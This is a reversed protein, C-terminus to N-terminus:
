LGFVQMEGDGTLYVASKSVIPSGYSAMSHSYLVAGSAENFAQLGDGLSGAYVVGNAIAPPDYDTADSGSDYAWLRVGSTANFAIVYEPTTAILTSGDLAPDLSTYSDGPVTPSIWLQSGTSASYAAVTNINELYVVGGSVVPTGGSAAVASTFLHAGTIANFAWLHTATAYAFGNAVSVASIDCCETGLAASWLLAGTTARFADVVSLSGYTDSYVVGNAVSTENFSAGPTVTRSWLLHGTSANYADMVNGIGVFVDGNSLAPVPNAPLPDGRFVLHSWRVSGSPINFVDLHIKNGGAAVLGSALSGMVVPYVGNEGQFGLWHTYTHTVVLGSVTSTGLTTEDRNDGDHAPGDMYMPWYGNGSPAGAASVSGTGLAAVVMALVPAVFRYTRIM